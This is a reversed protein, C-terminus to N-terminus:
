ENRPPEQFTKLIHPVLISSHIALSLGFEPAPLVSTKCGLVVSIVMFILMLLLEPFHLEKQLYRAVRRTNRSAGPPLKFVVEEADDDDRGEAVAMKQVAPAPKAPMVMALVSGAFCFTKLQRAQNRIRAKM